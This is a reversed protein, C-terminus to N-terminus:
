FVAPAEATDLKVDLIHAVSPAISRMDIQGLNGRKALGPGEVFLSSRMAPDSPLYGHMGKYSSPVQKAAKPDHGAEFGPKFAILFSAQEPGGMRAIADRQLIAAIGMDPDAKLQELLASVRARLVPDDPRALVVGASGGMFWPEAEWTEIKGTSDLTIMRAAIFPAILNVDTNVAQFGHDSVVVVTVDPEVARAAAILRGIMADNRAITALAEPSGPGFAHENHDVSALYVTTFAPKTEAILAAAFRVRNEDGEVSEDIGQAYPGLRNELKALLGPTALARMLKRDDDHGTRWIQPLNYDVPAGVSVPWHVNVTTLGAAHAASWLTPAKIDEAYWDWGIQNINLPDFTLNNGVGHRAPAVGTILTTHSPYTLTPLVGTVGEAYAGDAMMRKLTPVALGSKEAGIVDAPRLGDISIMLVPGAMAPAAAFLAAAAVFARV